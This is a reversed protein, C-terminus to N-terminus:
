PAPRTVHVTHTVPCKVARGVTCSKEALRVITDWDKESAESEVTFDLAVLSIDEKEFHILARCTMRAFTVRRKEAIKRATTMHCSAIAAGFLESSMPATDEGGKEAPKDTGFRVARDTGETRAVCSVRVPSVLELDVIEVDAM